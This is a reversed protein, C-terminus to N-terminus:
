RKRALLADALKTARTVSPGADGDGSYALAELEGLADRAETALDGPLGAREMAPIMEASTLGRVVVGSAAEVSLQLAEVAARLRAARDDASRARKLAERAERRPDRGANARKARSARVLSLVLDGSFALAPIGVILGWFWPRDGLPVRATPEGTPTARPSLQALADSSSAPAATPAEGHAQVIGLKATAVRYESTRPDYYPLTVAGLDITGKADIQAVYSFTRSGSVIGAGADISERTEAETFTVGQIEPLRVRSPVNGNGRLVVRVAISGGIPVARPEVTASLTYNGVDGVVYGAPRGSAPPEEVHVTVARSARVLGGRIGGGRFGPGVLTVTMPGVELDGARLPFLAVRRILQVSWRGGGLMIPKAEGENGSIPRQFFDPTTPEHPDLPQFMRPQAYLYVSATVQEGVVARPKDVITRLFATAELPADLALSPDVPAPPEPPGRDDVDPAGFPITFPDPPRKKGRLRPNNSAPRATVRVSGAIRKKGEWRFSIPGLEFPGTRLPTVQWMATFGGKRTVHGNVISMQTRTTVDPGSVTSSPLAPINPSDVAGGDVMVTLTVVFSEGVEVDDTDVRLIVEPVPQAAADRADTAIVCAAALSLSSLTRWTARM